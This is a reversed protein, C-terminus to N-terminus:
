SYRSKSTKIISTLLAIVENLKSKFLKLEINILKGKEFLVIWYDTERAEKLAISMKHIFDRKSESDIAEAVNAGIGTSSRLFQKSLIYENQKECEKFIKLSLLSLELSLERIPSKM